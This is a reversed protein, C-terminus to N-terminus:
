KVVKQFLIFINKICIQSYIIRKNLLKKMLIYHEYSVKKEGTFKDKFIKFEDPILDILEKEREEFKEFIKGFEKKYQKEKISNKSKKKNTM